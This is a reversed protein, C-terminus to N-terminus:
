FGIGGGVSRSLLFIIHSIWTFQYNLYIHGVWFHYQSCFRQIWPSVCVFLSCHFWVNHFVLRPSEPNSNICYKALNKRYTALNWGSCDVKWSKTVREREESKSAANTCFSLNTSALWHFNIASNTINPEGDDLITNAWKLWHWNSEDKHMQRNYSPDLIIGRMLKVSEMIKDCGWWSSYIIRCNKM